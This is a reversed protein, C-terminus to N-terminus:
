QRNNLLYVIKPFAAPIFTMCWFMVDDDIELLFSCYFFVSVSEGLCRMLTRKEDLNKILKEKLFYCLMDWLVMCGLDVVIFIANYIMYYVYWIMYVDGTKHMRYSILCYLLALTLTGIYIFFRNCVM